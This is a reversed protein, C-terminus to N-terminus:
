WKRNVVLAFTPMKQFTFAASVLCKMQEPRIANFEAVEHRRNVVVTYDNLCEGNRQIRLYIYRRAFVSTNQGFLEKLTKVTGEM